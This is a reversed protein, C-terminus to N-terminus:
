PAHPHPPLRFRVTAREVDRGSLTERTVPGLIEPAGIEELRDLRAVVTTIASGVLVLTGGASDLHFSVVAASSPVARTVAALIRTPSHRPAAFGSVERLASTVVDLERQVDRVKALRPELSALAAASRHARRAAVLGPATAFAAVSLVLAVGAAANAWRTSPSARQGATPVVHLTRSIDAAAAGYAEAFRWADDGLEQLAAVCTPAVACESAGRTRRAAVLQGNAYTLDVHTDGDRWAVTADECALWLIDASPVVAILRMGAANCGMRAAEVVPQDISGAWVADVADIRLTTTLLPVGNRLFFRSAGERVLLELARPDGIPPLGSICKVQSRVPGVSAVVSTRPWRRHDVSTLLREIAGDLSEDDVLAAETVWLVRGDRLALARLRDGGIAIGIRTSM